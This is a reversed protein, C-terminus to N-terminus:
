LTVKLVSFICLTALALLLLKIIILTAIKRGEHHVYDEIVVQLGISAHYFVSIVTLIMLVPNIGAELWKQTEYAGGGSNVLHLLSWLLWGVLFINAFATIRQHLWHQVGSRATGLGRARAIESKLGGPEWKMLM